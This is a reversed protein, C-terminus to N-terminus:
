RITKPRENGEVYTKSFAQFGRSIDSHSWLKELLEHLVKKENPSLPSLMQDELEARIEKAREATKRGDATLEIHYGRRDTPNPTRRLMARQELVDIIPVLNRPDIGTAEALQSQSVAGYKSLAYLFTLVNQGQWSLGLREMRETFKRRSEAGLMALLFADNKVLVDDIVNIKPRDM